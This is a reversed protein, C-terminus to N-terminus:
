ALDEGSEWRLIWLRDELVKRIPCFRDNNVIDGWEGHLIVSQMSPLYLRSLQLFCRELSRWIADLPVYEYLPSLAHLRITTLSSSAGVINPQQLFYYLCLCLEQLNPCNSLIDSVADNIQHVRFTQGLEVIRLTTGFAKWLNRLDETTDPISVDVIVHTLVPLSWTCIVSTMWWRCIIGGSEIQLQLTNLSQLTIPYSMHPSIEGNGCVLSLYLLAPAHRLLVYLYDLNTQMVMMTLSPRWDIRKLYRMEPLSMADQGSNSASTDPDMFPPDVVLVELQPVYKLIDFDYSYHRPLDLLRVLRGCGEDDGTEKGRKELAHKLANDAIGMRSEEYILEDALSRRLKCVLVLTLRVIATKKWM